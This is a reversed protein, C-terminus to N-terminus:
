AFREIAICALDGDVVPPIEASGCPKRGTINCRNWDRLADALWTDKFVDDVDDFFVLGIVREKAVHLFPIAIWLQTQEALIDARIVVGQGTFKHEEVVGIGAACVRSIAVLPRDAGNSIAVDLLVVVCMAPGVRVIAAIRQCERWLPKQPCGRKSGALGETDISLEDVLWRNRICDRAFATAPLFDPIVVAGSALDVFDCRPGVIRSNPGIHVRFEDAKWANNGILPARIDEILVHIAKFGFAFHWIQADHQKWIVM